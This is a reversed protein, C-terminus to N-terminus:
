FSAGCTHNISGIISSLNEFISESKNTVLTYIHNLICTVHQPELNFLFFIIKKPSKSDDEKFTPIDTSILNDATPDKRVGHFYFECQFTTTNNNNIDRSM